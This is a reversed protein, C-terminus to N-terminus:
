FLPNAIKLQHISKLLLKGYIPEPSFGSDNLFYNENKEATNTTPVVSVVVVTQQVKDVSKVSFEDDIKIQTIQDSCCTINDAHSIVPETNKATSNEQECCSKQEEAKKEEECNNCSVLSKSGSISCMHLIVPLGATSLTFAFILSLTLFKKNMIDFTCEIKNNYLDFSFRKRINM